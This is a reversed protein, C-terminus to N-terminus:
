APPPPHPLDEMRRGAGAEGGHADHGRNEEIGLSFAYMSAVDMRSRGTYREGNAAGAEMAGAAAITGRPGALRWTSRMRGLAAAAIPPRPHKIQAADHIGRSARRIAEGRAEAGVFPQQHRRVPRVSPDRRIEGPVKM